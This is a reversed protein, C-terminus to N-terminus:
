EGILNTITQPDADPEYDPTENWWTVLRNFLTKM